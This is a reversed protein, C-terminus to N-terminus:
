NRARYAGNKQNFARNIAARDRNTLAPIFAPQEPDTVRYGADYAQRHFRLYSEADRPPMGCPPVLLYACLSEHLQHRVADARTDYLGGDYKGDSLRIALWIRRGLLIEGLHDNVVQGVADSCAKAADSFGFANVLHSDTV